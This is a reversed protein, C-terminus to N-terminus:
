VEKSANPEQASGRELSKRDGQLSHPRPTSPRTNALCVFLATPTELLQVDVVANHPLTM